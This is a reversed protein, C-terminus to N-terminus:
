KREFLFKSIVKRYWFYGPNGYSDKKDQFEGKRVHRFLFWGDTPLRM